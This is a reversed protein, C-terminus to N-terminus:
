EKAPQLKEDIWFMEYATNALINWLQPSLGYRTRNHELSAALSGNEREGAAKWDALMEILDLLTMDDVGNPHHQIHHRNNAYHHKLAPGLKATGAKYEPTGYELGKLDGVVADFITKEPEVLKSADHLMGRLGLNSQVHSLLQAVREIHKRTEPGSDYTLNFNIEHDFAWFEQGDECHVKYRAPPTGAEERYDIIEADMGLNDFVVQVKRGILPNPQEESM